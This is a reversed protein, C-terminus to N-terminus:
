LFPTLDGSAVNSRIRATESTQCIRLLIARGYPRTMRQNIWTMRPCDNTGFTTLPSRVGL